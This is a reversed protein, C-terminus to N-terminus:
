RRSATYIPISNDVIIPKMESSTVCRIMNSKGAHIQAGVYSNFGNVIEQPALGMQTM